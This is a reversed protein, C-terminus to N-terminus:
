SQRQSVKAEMHLWPTQRCHVTYLVASVRLNGETYLYIFGKRIENSRLLGMPQVKRLSGIFDITVNIKKFSTLVSFSAM